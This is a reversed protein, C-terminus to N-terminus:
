VGIGTGPVRVGVAVIDSSGQMGGRTDGVREERRERRKRGGERGKGKEGVSRTPSLVQEVVVTLFGEEASLM